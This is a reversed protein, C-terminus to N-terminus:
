KAVWIGHDISGDWSVPLGGDPIYIWGGFSLPKNVYNDTVVTITGDPHEELNDTKLQVILGNPTCGYWNGDMRQWYDGPKYIYPQHQEDLPVRRGQMTKVGFFKRIFRFVM